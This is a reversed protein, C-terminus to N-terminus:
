CANKVGLKLSKLEAPTSVIFDPDAQVLREESNYGWTVAISKIKNAKAAHIDRVEDGIYFCHSPDVSYDQMLKRIRKAKGFLSFESVVDEVHHRADFNELYRDINKKSNSSVVFVRSGNEALEKLLIDMGEYLPQDHMNLSFARRVRWMYWPVQWPQIGLVQLLDKASLSRITETTYGLSEAKASIFEWALERSDVITGDFDFIFSQM